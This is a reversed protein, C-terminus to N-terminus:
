NPSTRLMEVSVGYGCNCKHKFLDCTSAVEVRHCNPCIVEYELAAALTGFLKTADPMKARPVEPVDAKTLSTAIVPKVAERQGKRACNLDQSFSMSINEM